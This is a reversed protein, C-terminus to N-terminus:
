PCRCRWELLAGAAEEGVVLGGEDQGAVEFVVEVQDGFAVPDDFGDDFVEVGLAVEPAFDFGRAAGVGDDGGVGAADREGFDGFSERGLEAAVEEARVEEIRRAVEVQHLQDGARFGVGADQGVDFLEGVATEAFADDAGLVRGVEDGVADATKEAAGDRFRHDLFVEGDFFHVREGAREDAQGIAGAEAQEIDDAEIDPGEDAVIEVFHDGVIGPAIAEQGEVELVFHDLAAPEALFGALAEVFADALAVVALDVDQIPLREFVLREGFGRKGESSAARLM